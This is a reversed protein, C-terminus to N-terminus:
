IYQEKQRDFFSIENISPKMTFNEYKTLTSGHKALSIKLNKTAGMNKM